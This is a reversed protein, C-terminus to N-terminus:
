VAYFLASPTTLRDVESMKVSSVRSEYHHRHLTQNLKGRDTPGQEVRCLPGSKQRIENTAQTLDEGGSATQTTFFIIM